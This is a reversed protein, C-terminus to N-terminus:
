RRLLQCRPVAHRHLRERLQVDCWQHVHGRAAARMLPRPGRGAEPVGRDVRGPRLGDKGM